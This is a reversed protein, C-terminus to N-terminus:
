PFLLHLSTYPHENEARGFRKVTVRGQRNMTEGMTSILTIV